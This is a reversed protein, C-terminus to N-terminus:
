GMILGNFGVLYPMRRGIWFILHLYRLQFEGNIAKGLSLCILFVSLGLKQLLQLVALFGHDDLEHLHSFFHIM